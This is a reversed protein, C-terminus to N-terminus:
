IWSQVRGQPSCSGGPGPVNTDARPFLPFLVPFSARPFLPPFASPTGM